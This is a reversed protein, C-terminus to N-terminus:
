ADHHQGLPMMMFRGGNCFARGALRAVADGAIPVSGAPFGPRFPKHGHPGAGRKGGSRGSFGATEIAYM